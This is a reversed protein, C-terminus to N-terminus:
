IETPNQDIGHKIQISNVRLLTIPYRLFRWRRHGQSRQTFIHRNVSHSQTIEVVTAEVNVQHRDLLPRGVLTYSDSGVLLVKELKIREGLKAPVQRKVEFVDGERVFHQLGYFHVVAFHRQVASRDIQQNVQDFFQQRGDDDLSETLHEGKHILGSTAKSSCFRGNIVLSLSSPCRNLVTASQIGSRILKFM